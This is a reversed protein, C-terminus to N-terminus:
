LGGEKTSTTVATKASPRLAAPASEERDRRYRFQRSTVIQTVWQSFTADNGAATMRGILPLDSGIVTRGLSYGMLKTAFTRLVQKEQTKLYALLGDVGAIKTQNALAAADDVPKGDAYHDRRRGVADYRELPFGLPDIRTHCSACSPNRQHSKLKERLSMEGFQKEDAPISGADPPPPPTPTGLIRRLLWDGRKVPSTRLPASTTTLVAGLRLAGGRGFGGAGEVREMEKSKMENPAGYHKALTQNLFTYDAHLIDGVPRDKRVVHEFFAVAEDYMASKVEDTFEPFRSADVGRYQDFRYFGLWQGFFETALRRAKADALMRRAQRALGDPRSLEGAAAARRLEADPQSSWLFYSLRSALEWSSLPRDSAKETAPELRYLFAPSVLVRTLLARMAKRHDQEAARTKAYFARLNQKETDSLPRRWAAAAFRIADDVHGAQAAQQTGQVALFESRLSRIYGRPEAPQAEIQAPTLAAISKAPLDLKYKNAVFQLFLDHYEFSALLDNWAQDLSRRTEDDLIKEVLFRDTRYYKLKAHFHDREPQNYTNDFPAPIEDKDSPTPEGHSVQPLNAAFHLVNKKWTQYASSEPHALLAFVPRGKEVEAKDSIVCRLVADSSSSALEVGAQMSLGIVGQPPALDLALVNDGSMVFDNPGLALGEPGQGFNLKQITAETLVSKLPQPETFGRDGQRFRVTPNRWVVVAKDKAGPNVSLVSLFAQHPKNKGGFIAFRLPQRASAKLAADTILLAREDGQGGAALEGAAFLWRPWDVVFKQIGSSGARAAATAQEADRKSPTPLGRFRAVVESTPYAPAPQQLVAWIHQVFRANLGEKAALSALTATPQGLAKRHRYQWAAFFARGYRDLGYPRGGEGAVSRFGHKQYITQIRHIASLELGTQGPDQYFGLPGSGMVAHDAVRKAEELYRELSADQMFQVDGFNTFGEGGASDSVFDGDIKYDIGTLDQITYAYEGSTLRRMTVRGPDGDHQTAYEKLRARIWSATQLRDAESPQPLKAPPMRKEELVQAVREWHHFQEGPSFQASLEQLNLGGAKAKGHCSFCYQQLTATPVPSTEAAAWGTGVASLAALM